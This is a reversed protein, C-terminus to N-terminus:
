HNYKKWNEYDTFDIHKGVVENDRRKIPKWDSIVETYCCRCNPHQPLKPRNKDNLSYIKADYKQCDDCTKKDLTAMYMVKEIAEEKFFVEDTEAQCRAIETQVLRQTNYANLSYRKNIIKKIDNVSTNGVLFNNIDKKLLLEIDKKNTWLRDSWNKSNVKKNVINDINKDKMKKYKRNSGITLIYYKLNHTELVTTGLIAAMKSKEKKYEESIFNELMSYLKLTLQKRQKDTLNLKDDKVDYDLLIKSIFELLSNRNNSITKYQDKYQELMDTYIKDIAEINLNNYLEQDKM